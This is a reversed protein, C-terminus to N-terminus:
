DLRTVGVRRPMAAQVARQMTVESVASLAEDHDLFFSFCAPGSGSMFVPRSWTATLDEIWDSLDPILDLAAPTLDNRVEDLERLAPPLFRAPTEDGLPGELRDWRRYVEATSLEFPAVVIGFAFGELPEIPTLREGYGEMWASGGILFFPVDSGVVPAVEEPREGDVGLMDAVGRLTAAADASGGGLGAAVPIHKRLRILLPPRRPLALAEVAKWVLNEGGEPLDAGEVEVVDEDGEEMTVLDVWDITQVLSRLPHKGSSDARGVRLDLNLKAPAEWEGV